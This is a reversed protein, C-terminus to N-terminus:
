VSSSAWYQDWNYKLVENGWSTWGAVLYRSFIELASYDNVDPLYPEILEKLCPKRSHIDPVAAIIRRQIEPAHAMTTWANPAARGLLLTEYPKRWESDISFMPEGKTTTKIWVWEEILGVNWQEFLGGPGLVIDRTSEKNTIWIGVLGNHEIYNDLDMRQLHKKMHPMGGIQDYNGKRKASGSPWPPDLLIFDFHRPLTYEETLERFSARFENSQGTDSLFLSSQPPIKFRYHPGTAPPPTNGSVTLHVTHPHSNYFSSKWPEEPSVLEDNQSGAPIERAPSYSVLWPHTVNGTSTADSGSGISAMMKEFDFPEEKGKSASWERLRANLEKEPDDIEIGTDRPIPIQTMLNRPLCWRQGLLHNRIQSLAPAIAAKYEAYLPGTYYFYKEQKKNAKPVRPENEIIYPEELPPTSLIMDTNDNGQALAISTPIDILTVDRTANQYLIATCPMM